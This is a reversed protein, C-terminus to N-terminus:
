IKEIKTLGLLEFVYGITERLVDIVFLNRATEEQDETIIQFKEYFSNFENTLDYLFETLLNPLSADSAAKLIHRLRIIKRSIAIADDGLYEQSKVGTFKEQAKHEISYLRALSYQLYPASNGKLSIMKDFSFIVDGKRNQSLDAYKIASVGIELALRKPDTTESGKEEIIKAAREQAETLLDELLVTKGARTSMKGEPLRIMGHGAFVIQGKEVWGLKIAVAELQQFHLNQDNGVHYIIAAPNYTELRYKLAALDRTMYLTAGDGKQILAPPLGDLAVIQAGESETLLGKEKLEVIVDQLKDEYFSEGRVEDIKVGLVSYIRDFELFSWEVCKRWLQRVDQDGEELKKFYERAKENLSDDKEAESHFRVYLKNLENIPDKAIDAENGWAKIAYILKGFQTGWDGIHNVGVTNYGLAKHINYNAQGIVTSRLHGVSFPKAINPSSYDFVVTLGKNAEDRCYSKIDSLMSKLEETYQDRSLYINIYGSKYETKDCLKEAELAQGIKNILDDASLGTEQSIRAVDGPSLCFDGFEGRTVSLEAMIGIAQQISAEIKKRIM